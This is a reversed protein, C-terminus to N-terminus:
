MARRPSQFRGPIQELRLISYTGRDEIMYRYKRSSGYCSFELVGEEALRCDLEDGTDRRILASLTDEPSAYIRYIFKSMTANYNLTRGTAKFHRIYLPIVIGLTVAAILAFVIALVIWAAM